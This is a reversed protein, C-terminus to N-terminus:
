RRRIGCCAARFGSICGCRTRAGIRPATGRARWRCGASCWCAWCWPWSSCRPGAFAGPVAVAAVCWCVEWIPMIPGAALCLRRCPIVRCGSVERATQRHRNRQCKADGPIPVGSEPVECLACRPSRKRNKALHVYRIRVPGFLIRGRPEPRRRDDCCCAAFRSRGASPPPRLDRRATGHRARSIRRTGDATSARPTQPRRPRPGRLSGAAAGGPRSARPSSAPGRSAPRAREAARRDDRSWLQQQDRRMEISRRDLARQGGTRRTAQGLVGGRDLDGVRDDTSGASV